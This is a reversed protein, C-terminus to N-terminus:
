VTRDALIIYRYKATERTHCVSLRHAVTVTYIPSHSLSACYTMLNGSQWVEIFAHKRNQRYFAAFRSLCQLMAICWETLHGCYLLKVVHDRCYWVWDRIDHLM